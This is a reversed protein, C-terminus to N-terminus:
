PFEHSNMRHSNEARMFFICHLATYRCTHRYKDEFHGVISELSIKVVVILIYMFTLVFKYILTNEQMKLQQVKVSIEM